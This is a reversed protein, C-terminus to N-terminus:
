LAWWMGLTRLFTNKRLGHRLSIALKRIKSFKNINGWIDLRSKTNDPIIDNYQKVFNLTQSQAALLKDHLTKKGSRWHDICSRVSYKQPGFVNSSHKRYYTYQNPIYVIKGFCAAVLALYWDYCIVEQPFPYRLLKKLHANFMVACGTVNNQVCLHFINNRSPTLHQYKIFSSSILNGRADCVSLDSHILLATKQSKKEVELMNAMMKEVKDSYWIDDQDAFMVYEGSSEQLLAAYSQVVGLHKGSNDCFVIPFPAKKVFDHLIQNTTDTSGDDRVILKFNKCSQHVLSSLFEKLYKEGNYTSLLIDIM